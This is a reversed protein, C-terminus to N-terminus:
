QNKNSAILAEYSLRRRLPQFAPDRQITDRWFAQRKEPPERKLRERILEVATDQYQSALQGASRGKAAIESAAASYAMAYIRAANYVVRPDSKGVRIAERADAVAARHDGLRAHASGRGTYADANEPMLKIAAEFDVLALKTADFNLYAWGREKLISGDDPRLELAQSLDRIASPYNERETQALGRFEYIVASKRGKALAIDCTRILEAYRKLQLLARFQLVSAEVYDPATRLALKTQELADDFRGEVYLLKGLNTHDRALVQNARDEHRIALMLDAQAAQRHAPTADPRAQLLEARARYLPAWDPKLAIAQSIQAIADDAKGQRHYVFALNAHANPDKKNRIAELFDAASEDLRGRQFRVLGRNVLLNFSLDNDPRRKLQELAALFDAEAKEFESEAVKKLNSERGPSTAVLNL